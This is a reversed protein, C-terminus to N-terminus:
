KSSEILLIWWLCNQLMRFCLPVLLDDDLGDLLMYNLVSDSWSVCHVHEVFEEVYSELSRGDQHLHLLYEEPPDSNFDMGSFGERKLDPRRDCMPHLPM